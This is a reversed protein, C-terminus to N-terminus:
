ARCRKAIVKVESLCFPCILFHAKKMETFDEVAKRAIDQSCQTCFYPRDNEIREIESKDEVVFGPQADTIVNQM